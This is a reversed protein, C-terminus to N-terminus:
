VGAPGGAPIAQKRPIQTYLRRGEPGLDAGDGQWGKDGMLDPNALDPRNEFEPDSVAM